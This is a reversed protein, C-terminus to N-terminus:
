QSRETLIAQIVTLIATARALDNDAEVADAVALARNADVLADQADQLQSKIRDKDSTKLPSLPDCPGNPVTNGCLTRVETALSEIDAATVVIADAVSDVKPRELTGCGLVPLTALALLILKKM